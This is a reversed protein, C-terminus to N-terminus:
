TNEGTAKKIAARVKALPSEPDINATQDRSWIAEVMQLAALMDPAAAILRANAELTDADIDDCDLMAVRGGEGIVDLNEAATTGDV